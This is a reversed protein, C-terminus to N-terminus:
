YGLNLHKWVDWSVQIAFCQMVLFFFFFFFICGKYSKRLAVTLKSSKGMSKPVCDFNWFRKLIQEKELLMGAFILSKSTPPSSSSCQQQSSSRSNNEKMQIAKEPERVQVFAKKGEVLPGSSPEGNMSSLINQLDSLQIQQQRASASANASAAAAPAAATGSNGTTGTTGTYLLHLIKLFCDWLFLFVFHWIFMHAFLNDYAYVVKICSNQSQPSQAIKHVKGLTHYLFTHTHTLPLPPPYPFFLSLSLSHTYAAPSPPSLSLFLSLSLSLSLSLPLSLTHTYTYTHALMHACM